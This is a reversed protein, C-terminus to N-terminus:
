GMRYAFRQRDRLVRAVAAFDPLYPNKAVAPAPLRYTEAFPVALAALKRNHAEVMLVELNLVDQVNYALLTELAARDNRRRYDYWLLVAAFGDLDEMGPRHIGLQRECGKLGGSYGLGALVYRLDIHAQRLPCVLDRALFPLDFSKGNYTVLLSYDAVDRAFDALNRGHVYTRVTRGDYLAITTVHAAPGMGTTEIDLYACRQRFDGFLRWAHAAPLQEAFWAPNGLRYQEASARLRDASLRPPGAALAADWTTLGRAWLRRETSEGVGPLHCFTHRLMAGM